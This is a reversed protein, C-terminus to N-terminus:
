KKSQCTPETGSFVFGQNHVGTCSRTVNGSGPVLEYGANCIYHISQENRYLETQYPTYNGHAIVAPPTCKIGAVSHWQCHYVHKDLSTHYWIDAVAVGSATIYM